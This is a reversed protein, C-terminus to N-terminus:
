LGKLEPVLQDTREERMQHVIEVVDPFDDPVEFKPLSDIREFVRKRRETREEAGERDIMASHAAEYNVPARRLEGFRESPAAGVDMLGSKRRYAELYERIIHVTQQSISRDSAIACLRLEEYLSSPFDKVQLAPM